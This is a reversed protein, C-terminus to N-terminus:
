MLCCRALDPQTSRRFVGEGQGRGLPLPSRGIFQAASLEPAGEGRPSLAPTLPAKELREVSKSEQRPWITKQPNANRLDLARPQRAALRPLRPSGETALRLARPRAKAIRYRRHQALDEGLAPEHRGMDANAKRARVHRRANHHKGIQGSRRLVARKQDGVAKAAFVPEIRRGDGDPAARQPRRFVASFRDKAKAHRVGKQRLDRRRQSRVAKVRVLDGRVVHQTERFGTRALKLGRPMTKIRRGM